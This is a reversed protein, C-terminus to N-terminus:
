APVTVARRSLAERLADETRDVLGEWGHEALVRRRGEAGLRAALAPDRLVTLLAEALGAADGPEVLLGNEGHRVFDPIGGMRTGVVPRGCANAEALVLGFAEAPRTSPLTTVTAAQYARVLAGHSLRGAFAM